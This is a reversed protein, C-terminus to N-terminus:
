FRPPPTLARTPQGARLLQMAIRHRNGYMQMAIRHPDRHTQM